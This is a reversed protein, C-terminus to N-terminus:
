GLFGNGVLDGAAFFVVVFGLGGADESGGGVAGGGGAGVVALAAAAGELVDVAVNLYGVFLADEFVLELAEAFDAGLVEQGGDVSLGPAVAVAGAEAGVVALAAGGETELAAAAVANDVDLLAGDEGGLKGVLQAVGAGQELLEVAQVGGDTGDFQVVAGGGVAEGQVGFVEGFGGAGVDDLVGLAQGGVPVDPQLGWVLGGLGEKWVAGLEAVVQGFVGEGEGVAGAVEGLDVGGGVGQENGAGHLQQLGLGAFADGVKEAAEAVEAEGDSGGACLDDADFARGREGFTGALVGAEVVEGFAGAEVTGVEELGGFVGDGAPAIEIFDQEVRGAAAGVGEDLGQVGGVERATDHVNGAVGGGEGAIGGYEHAFAVAEAVGADDVHEGLGGV